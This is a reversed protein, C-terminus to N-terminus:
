EPDRYRGWTLDSIKAPLVTGFVRGHHGLQTNFYAFTKKADYQHDDLVDVIQNNALLFLVSNKQISTPQDIIEVQGAEDSLRLLFHQQDVDITEIKM